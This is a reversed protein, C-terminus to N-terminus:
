VSESTLFGFICHVHMCMCANESFHSDNRVGELSISDDQFPKMDIGHVPESFVEPCFLVPSYYYYFSSMTKNHVVLLDETEMQKRQQDQSVIQSEYTSVIQFVNNNTCTLWISCPRIDQITQVPSGRPGYAKSPNKWFDIPNESVQHTVIDWLKLQILHLSKSNNSPFRM